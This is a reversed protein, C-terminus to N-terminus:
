AKVVVLDVNSKSWSFFIKFFAQQELNKKINSKTRCKYYQSTGKAPSSKTKSRKAVVCKERTNETLWIFKMYTFYTCIFQISNFVNPVICINFDNNKYNPEDLTIVHFCNKLSDQSFLLELELTYRIIRKVSGPM